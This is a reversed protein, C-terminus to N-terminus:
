TIESWNAAIKLSGMIKNLFNFKISYKKCRKLYIHKRRSNASTMFQISKKLKINDKCEQMEWQNQSHSQGTTKRKM